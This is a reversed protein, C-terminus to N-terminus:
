LSFPRGPSPDIKECGEKRLLPLCLTPGPATTEVAEEDPVGVIKENESADASTGYVYEQHHM